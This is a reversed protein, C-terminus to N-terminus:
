MRSRSRKPKPDALAKLTANLRFTPIGGPRIALFCLQTVSEPNYHPANPGEGESTLRWNM